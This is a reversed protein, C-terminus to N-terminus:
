SSIAKHRTTTEKAKVLKLFPDYIESFQRYHTKTNAKPCGGPICAITAITATVPWIQNKDASLRV